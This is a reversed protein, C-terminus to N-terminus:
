RRYILAKLREIQFSQLGAEFTAGITSAPQQTLLARVLAAHGIYQYAESPVIVPREGAVPTLKEDLNEPAIEGLAATLALTLLVPQVQKEDTVILRAGQCERGKFPGTTPTWVYPEIRVGLMGAADRALEDTKAVIMDAAKKRWAGVLRASDIGPAGFAQHEILGDQEPDIGSARQAGAEIAVRVVSETLTDELTLTGDRDVPVWPLGTRPWRMSRQWGELQVIELKANIGFFGNVLAALEGSTLGHTMPIPYFSEPRGILDADPLPGDVEVGGLPNPRDLVLVDWKRRYAEELVGAILLVSTDARFGSIPLDVVLTDADRGWEPPFEVSRGSLVLVPVEFRGLLEKSSIALEPIMRVPPAIALADVTVGDLSKVWDFVNDDSVILPGSTLVVLNKGKLAEAKSTRAVDLGLRVAPTAPATASLRERLVTWNTVVPDEPSEQEGEEAADSDVVPVGPQDPSTPGNPSGSDPCGTALALALLLASLQLFRM